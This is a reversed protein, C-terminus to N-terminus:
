VLRADTRIMHGQDITAQKSRHLLVRFCTSSGTLSPWCQWRTSSGKCYSHSRKLLETFSYFKLIKSMSLMSLKYWVASAEVILLLYFNNCLKFPMVTKTINNSGWLCACACFVDLGHVCYTILFLFHLRSYHSYNYHSNWLQLKGYSFMWSTPRVRKLATPFFGGNSWKAWTTLSRHPNGFSLLEFLHHQQGWSSTRM